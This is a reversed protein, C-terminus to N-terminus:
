VRTRPIPDPTRSALSLLATARPLIPEARSAPRPLLTARTPVAEPSNLVAPASDDPLCEGCLAPLESDGHEHPSCCPCPCRSGDEPIPCVCFPNSCANGEHADAIVADAFCPLLWAVLCAGLLLAVTARMLHLRDFVLSSSLRDFCRGSARNNFARVVLVIAGFSATRGIFSEGPGSPAKTM